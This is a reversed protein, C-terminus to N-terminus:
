CRALPLDYEDWVTSRKLCLTLTSPAKSGYDHVLLNDGYLMVQLFLYFLHPPTICETVVVYPRLDHERKVQSCDVTSLNQWPLVLTFKALAPHFSGQLPNHFPGSGTKICHWLCIQPKKVSLFHLRILHSCTCYFCALSSSMVAVSIEMSSASPSVWILVGM